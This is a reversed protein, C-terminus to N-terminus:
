REILHVAMWGRSDRQLVSHATQVISPWLVLSYWKEGMTAAHRCRSGVVGFNAAGHSGGDYWMSAPIACHMRPTQM